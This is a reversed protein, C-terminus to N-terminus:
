TVSWVLEHGALHLQQAGAANEDDVVMEGIGVGSKGPAMLGNFPCAVVSVGAVQGPALKDVQKGM